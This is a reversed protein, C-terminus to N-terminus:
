LAGYYEAISGKTIANESNMGEPIDRRANKWLDELRSLTRLECPERDGYDRIVVEISDKEDASLNESDGIPLDKCSLTYHGRHM